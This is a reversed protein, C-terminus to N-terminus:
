LRSAIYSLILAGGGLSEGPVSDYAVRAVPGWGVPARGDLKRLHALRVALLHVMRRQLVVLLARAGWSKPAARRPWPALESSHPLQPQPPPVSTHAGASRRRPSASPKTSISRRRLRSLTESCCSARGSWARDCPSKRSSSRLWQVAPMLALPQLCRRARPLFRPPPSRYSPEPAEREVTRSNFVKSLVRTLALHSGAKLLGAHRM